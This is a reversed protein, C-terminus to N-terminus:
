TLLKQRPQFIRSLPQRWHNRSHLSLLKPTTSPFSYFNSVSASSADKSRDNSTPASPKRQDRIMTADISARKSAAPPLSTARTPAAADRPQEKSENNPKATAPAAATGKDSAVVINASHGGRSGTDRGGRAGGRGRSTRLQPIPTQFQVTPVFDMTVWEKKPRPKSSDLDEPAEKEPKEVKDVREVVSKQRDVKIAIEPTPWLSADEVPPVAGNVNSTNERTARTGRPGSRRVSSEADSTKRQTKVEDHTTATASESGDVQKGNKKTTQTNVVDGNVHASTSSSASGPPKVTKAAQAEIRQHWINVTPISAEVLPKAPEKPKEEAEKDKADDQEGPSKEAQKGKKGRKNKKAEAEDVTPRVSGNSHRADKDSRRASADTVADDDDRHGLNSSSAISEPQPAHEARPASESDQKWAMEKLTETTKPSDKIEADTNRAATTPLQNGSVPPAVGDKSQPNANTTPPNTNSQTATQGKAAQAYSFTSPTAM